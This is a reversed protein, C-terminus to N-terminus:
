NRSARGISNVVTIYMDGQRDMGDLASILFTVAEAGGAEGLAELVRPYAATGKTDKAEQILCKVGFQNAM